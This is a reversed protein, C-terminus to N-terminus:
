GCFGFKRFDPSFFSSNLGCMSAFTRFTVIEGLSGRWMSTCRFNQLRLACTCTQTHDDMSRRLPRGRCFVRSADISAFFRLPVSRGRSTGGMLTGSRQLTRLSKRAARISTQVPCLLRLRSRDHRSSTAARQLNAIQVMVHRTCMDHENTNRLPRGNRFVLSCSMRGLCSMHVLPTPTQGHCTQHM